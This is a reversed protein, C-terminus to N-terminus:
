CRWTVFPVNRRYDLAACRYSIAGHLCAGSRADGATGSKPSCPVGVAAETELRYKSKSDPVCTAKETESTAGLCIDLEYKIKGRRLRRRSQRQRRVDPGSPVAARQFQGRSQHGRDRRLIRHGAPFISELPLADALCLLGHRDTIEVPSSIDHNRDSRKDFTLSFNHEIEIERYDVNPYRIKFEAKADHAWLLSTLSAAAAVAVMTARQGQKSRVLSSLLM